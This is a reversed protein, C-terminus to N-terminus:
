AALFPAQLICVPGSSDGVCISGGHWQASTVAQPAKFCAVAPTRRPAEHSQRGRADSDSDSDREVPGGRSLPSWHREELPPLATILVTDLGSVSLLYQGGRGEPGEAFSFAQGAVQRVEEGSAMDWFRVTDDVSGSVVSKGDQCFRVKTVM